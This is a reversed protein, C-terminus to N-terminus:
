VTWEVTFVVEDDEIVQTLFGRDNFILTTGNEYEITFGKEFALGVFKATSIFKCDGTDLVDDAHIALIQTLTTKVSAPTSESWEIEWVELEEVGTEHEILTTTLTYTKDDATVTGYWVKHNETIYDEDERVMEKFTDLDLEKQFGVLNGYVFFGVVLIILIIFLIFIFKFFMGIAKM